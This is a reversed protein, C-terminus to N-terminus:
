GDHRGPLGWISMLRNTGGRKEGVKVIKGVDVMEKRRTRAGSQSIKYGNAALGLFIEEDTKPGFELLAIIRSHTDSQNRVSKAAAHSTGPDTTRAVPEPPWKAVVPDSQSRLSLDTWLTQQGPIQEPKPEKTEPHRENAWVSTWPYKAVMADYKEATWGITDVAFAEDNLINTDDHYTIGEAATEEVYKAPLRWWEDRWIPDMVRDDVWTWYAGRCDNIWSAISVKGTAMIYVSYTVEFGDPVKPDFRYPDEILDSSM